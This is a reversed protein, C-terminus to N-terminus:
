EETQGERGTQLRTNLNREIPAVRGEHVVIQLLARAAAEALRSHVPSRPASEGNKSLKM